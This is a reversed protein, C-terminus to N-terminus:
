GVRHPMPATERVAPPEGDAAPPIPAAANARAAPEPPDTPDFPLGHPAPAPPDLLRDLDTVDVVGEPVGPEAPSTAAPPEPDPPAAHRAFFAFHVAAYGLVASAASIAMVGRM